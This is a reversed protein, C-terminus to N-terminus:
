NYISTNRNTCTNTRFKALTLTLTVIIAIQDMINANTAGYSLRLIDIYLLHFTHRDTQPEMVFM